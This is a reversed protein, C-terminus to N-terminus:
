PLKGFKKVTEVILFFWVPTVTFISLLLWAYGLIAFYGTLELKIESM